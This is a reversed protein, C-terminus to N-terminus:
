RLRGADPALAAALSSSSPPPPQPTAILGLAYILTYLNLCLRVMDLAYVSCDSLRLYSISLLQTSTTRSSSEGRHDSSSAATHVFVCTLSCQRHLRRLMSPEWCQFVAAVRPLALSSLRKLTHALADKGHLIWPSSPYCTTRFM